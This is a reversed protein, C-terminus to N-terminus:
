PAIRNHHRNWPNTDHDNTSSKSNPTIRFTGTADRQKRDSSGKTSTNNTTNSNPITANKGNNTATDKTTHRTNSNNNNNNNSNNNNNNNNNDNSQEESLSLTKYKSTDQSSQTQQVHQSSSLNKPDPFVSLTDVMKTRARQSNARSKSYTMSRQGRSKKKQLPISTMVKRRVRVRTGKSSKTPPFWVCFCSEYNPYQWSNAFNKTKLKKATVFYHLVHKEKKSFKLLFAILDFMNKLKSSLNWNKPPKESIEYISFDFQYDLGFQMDLAFKSYDNK